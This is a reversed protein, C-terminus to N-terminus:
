IIKYIKILNIKYIKIEQSIRIETKLGLLKILGGANISEKQDGHM